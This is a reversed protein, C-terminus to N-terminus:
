RVATNAPPYFSQSYRASRPCIAYFEVEFLIRPPTVFRLLSCANKTKLRSSNKEPINQMNFAVQPVHFRAKGGAVEGADHFVGGVHLAV